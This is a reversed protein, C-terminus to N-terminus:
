LNLTRIRSTEMRRIRHPLRRAIPTLRRQDVTMEPNNTFADWAVYAVSLATLAFWGLLIVDIWPLPGYGFLTLNSM